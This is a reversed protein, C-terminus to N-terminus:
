SQEERLKALQANIWAIPDNVMADHMFIAPIYIDDPNMAYAERMAATVDACPATDFPWGGSARFTRMLYGYGLGRCWAQSTLLHCCVGLNVPVTPCRVVVASAGGPADLACTWHLEVPRGEALLIMALALLVTGRKHLTAASIGGSSTTDMILRIPGHEVPVNRRMCDPHGALFEPVVPFAGCPSAMREWGRTQVDGADIQGLLAEADRVLRENGITAYRAADACTEGGLWDGYDRGGATAGLARAAEAADDFWAVHVPRADDRFLVTNTVTRM